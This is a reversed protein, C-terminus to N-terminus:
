GAQSEIEGSNSPFLRIGLSELEGEDNVEEFKVSIPKSVGSDQMTIGYITDGISMTKKSHSIIIFQTQERFQELIEALRTTNAEDLAADVEDLICFQSPHNKFLAFLLAVCTMTKEGGSMLSLNLRQKGPPQAIIEIGGELPDECETFQLEANGGGFLDRFIHFFYEGIRDFTQMFIKRCDANIREITKTLKDKASTFEQYKEALKQYRAQIEDLENLADPNINGLNQIKSRLKNIEAHLSSNEKEEEETLSEMNKLFKDPQINYDECLRAVVNEAEHEFTGKELLLEHIKEEISRLKKRLRAANSSIETRELHSSDKEKRLETMQRAFCEQELYYDALRANNGLTLREAEQFLQNNQELQSQLESIVKGREAMDSDLQRLSDSLSGLREESKALEVKNETVTRNKESRFADSQAIQSDLAEMRKKLLDAQNELENKERNKKNLQNELTDLCIQIETGKETFELIRNEQQVQRELAANLSQQHEILKQETETLSDELSDVTRQRNELELQSKQVENDADSIENSLISLQSGLTRLESRRSILNSSAHHPGICLIGDSSYREGALTVFHIKPLQIGSATSMARIPSEESHLNETIINKSNNKEATDHSQSFDIAPFVPLPLEGSYIQRSLEIATNLNEVIWTEGLLYKFLPLYIDQCQIFQDARGLVGSLNELGNTIQVHSFRAALAQANKRQRAPLFDEMWIFGVRGPFGQSNRRLAELLKSNPEVVLYQAREGLAVEILSAADVEVQILDAVLGSIDRFPGDAHRRAETLLYRVGPSLGEHREQLEELTSIRGLMASHRRHLEMLHKKAENWLREAMDQERRAEELDESFRNKLAELETLQRKAEAQRSQLLAVDEQISRIHSLNQELQQFTTEKQLTLSSVANEMASINRMVEFSQASLKEKQTRLNGLENIAEELCTKAKQLNEVVQAFQKQALDLEEQRNERSERLIRLRRRMETIRLQASNIEAELETMRKTQFTVVSESVGISHRNAAIRESLSEILADVQSNSQEFNQILADTEDLKKQTETQESNLDSIKKEANGMKKQYVAYDMAASQFRLKELRETLSRFQVAKEAQSKVKSYHKEVEELLDSHRLLVQDIRSLANLAEQRKAKFRSVGAAEEFLVRRERPSSQLLSDVRGQEIISYAHTGLGTGLLLERIDKLKCPQRNLFYESEASGEGSRFVRRTVVVETADFNLRKDTNDFTLSVEATNMAKRTTSGNFIVDSSDKGRLSKMSKEGLVWKISDVVNSKGSGNPGVILTLGNSFEIRNRDAFSKFGSIELTKLM